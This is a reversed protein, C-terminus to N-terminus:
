PTDEEYHKREESLVKPMNKAKVQYGDIVPGYLAFLDLRGSTNPHELNSPYIFNLLTQMTVKFKDYKYPPVKEPFSFKFVDREKNANKADDSGWFGNKIADVGHVARLSEAAQTKAEVPDKPGLLKKFRGIPSELKVEEEKQEDYKSDVKNTILLV